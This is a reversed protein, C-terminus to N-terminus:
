RPAALSAFQRGHLPETSWRLGFTNDNADCRVLLHHPTDLFILDLEFVGSDTWGGSAAVPMTPETLSSEAWTRHGCAIEPETDFRVSWGEDKPTVTVEAIDPVLGRDAEPVASRFTWPGADPGTASGDVTPLQLDREHLPVAEGPEADLAPLLHDWAADLIAQMDTTASNIALVLDSDPVVLSFQGYAGDGRFANHRCRWFQYGYGQQWDLPENQRWPTVTAIQNATAAEVWSEPVLQRDGWRGRQLYLQGLKAISETTVHLGSFGIDVSNRAHWYTEDIGLPDFLRPRLYDTLREGTVATIIASQMYTATSNYAFVTGPEQAPPFRFFARVPDDDTGFVHATTDLPHGTGMCLLHHVRMQLLHPSPDDPVADPFFSVVPDDVSLRGEAVALGIATSAFSKSLSYLLHVRDPAYPAWWGEAVVHGHRLLMLSHLEIGQGAVQDLFRDIGRPDIGQESPTSRPLQM